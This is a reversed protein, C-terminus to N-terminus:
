QDHPGLRARHPEDRGLVRQVLQGLVAGDGEALRRRRGPGAGAQPRRDPPRHAPPPTSRGRAPGPGPLLAAEAEVLEADPTEEGEGPRGGVSVPRHRGLEAVRAEAAERAASPGPWTSRRPWSPWASCCRSGPAGGDLRRDDTTSPGAGGPRVGRPVAVRVEDGEPRVVGVVGPEVTGVLPTHGALFSLDGEGTRLIVEAAAGSLLVREPTVLEVAFVSEDAM